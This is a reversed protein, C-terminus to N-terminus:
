LVDEPSKAPSMSVNVRMHCRQREETLPSTFAYYLEGRLSKEEETPGSM